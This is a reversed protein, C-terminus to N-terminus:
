AQSQVPEFALLQRKTVYRLMLYLGLGIPGLMFTCLLCPVVLWHSIGLKQSDHVEWSGVFLDFALYHVWGITLLYPDAFFAMVGELSGFGGEEPLTGLRSAFMGGYLLALIFPVIVTTVLSLTWKWRPLLVLLLWAPIIATNCISFILDASM